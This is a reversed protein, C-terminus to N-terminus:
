SKKLYETSNVQSDSQDQVKILQSKKSQKNLKMVLLQDIRIKQKKMIWDQFITCELFKNMEELNDM